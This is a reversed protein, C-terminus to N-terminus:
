ARKKKLIGDLAKKEVEAFRGAIKKEEDAVMKRLEVAKGVGTKFGGQIEHMASKVPYITVTKILFAKSQFGKSEPEEIRTALLVSSFRLLSSVAFVLPLGSLIWLGVQSSLGSLVIGAMAGAFLAIGQFFNYYGVFKAKEKEHTTKM